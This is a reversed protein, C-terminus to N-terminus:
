LERCHSMYRSVAVNEQIRRKQQLQRAVSSMTGNPHREYGLVTEASTRLSHSIYAWQGGIDSLYPSRRPKDSLQASFAEAIRQSRLKRVDVKRLASSRVTRSASIRLWFKAAVLYHDSDVNPSRFTRVDLVSSVHRGNIVIHDIQNFTSRDPSMWTAKHIDLHQFM